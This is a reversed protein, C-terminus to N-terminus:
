EGVLTLGFREKLEPVWEDSHVAPRRGGGDTRATAGRAASDSSLRFSEELGAPFIIELIRAVRDSANWFTHFIGKPKYVYTGPSAAITEDGVRFGVDGELVYSLEDESVHAHPPVLRRPGLGFEVISLEGGTVHGPVAFRVFLGAYREATEGDGPGTAFPRRSETM